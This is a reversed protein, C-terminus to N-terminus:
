KDRMAPIRDKRGRRVRIRVRGERVRGEGRRGERGGQGQGKGVM